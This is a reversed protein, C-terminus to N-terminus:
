FDVWMKTLFIATSISKEADLTRVSLSAMEVNLIAASFVRKRCLQQQIVWARNPQVCCLQCVLRQWSDIRVLISLSAQGGRRRLHAFALAILM